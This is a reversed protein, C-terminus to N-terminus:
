LKKTHTLILAPVFNNRFYKIPYESIKEQDTEPYVQKLILHDSSGSIVIFVVDKNDQHHCYKNIFKLHSLDPLTDLIEDATKMPETPEEKTLAYCILCEFYGQKNRNMSWFHDCRGIMTM